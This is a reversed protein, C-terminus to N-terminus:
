AKLCEFGIKPSPVWYVMYQPWGCLVAIRSLKKEIEEEIGKLVHDEPGLTTFTSATETQGFANIFRAWPMEHIAKKIKVQFVM